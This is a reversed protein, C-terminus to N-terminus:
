RSVARTLERIVWAAFVPGRLAALGESLRKGSVYNSVLTLDKQPDLKEVARIKTFADHRFQSLVEVRERLATEFDASGAIRWSFRLLELSPGRSNDFMLLRDGISDSLGQAYWSARGQQDAPLDQAEDTTIKQASWSNM